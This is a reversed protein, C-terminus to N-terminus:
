REEIGMLVSSLCGRLVEKERKWPNRVTNKRRRRIGMLEVDQEKEEEDEEGCDKDGIRWLMMQVGISGDSLEM